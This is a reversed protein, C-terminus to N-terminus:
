LNDMVIILEKNPYDKALIKVLESIYEEFVEYKTGGGSFFRLL